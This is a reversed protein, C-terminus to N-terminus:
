ELRMGPKFVKTKLATLAAPTMGTDLLQDEADQVDYDVGRSQASIPAARINDLKNALMAFGANIAEVVDGTTVEVPRTTGFYIRLAEKLLHAPIMGSADIGEIWQWEEPDADNLSVAFKRQAM